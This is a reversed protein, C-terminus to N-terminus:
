AANALAEQVIRFLAFEADRALQPAFEKASVSARLGTRAEFQQAYWHLAPVLGHDDLVSPRLESMAFRIADVTGEVLRVMEGLRGSVRSEANAPLESGLIDIGIGLMTLNQGILDHLEMALKHREVEQSEVLRHLLHRVRDSYDRLQQEDRKRETIDKGVGRYGKFNGADDFVPEGNIMIYHRKGDAAVRSYEFDRIPLRSELQARHEDWSCTLPMVDPLEWRLRGFVTDTTSGMRREFAPAPRCLRLNEDQEWYWDSSLGTLSRFREESERLQLEARKRETIDRFSCVRGVVAGGSRQPLSHREIVRGDAFAIEERADLQPDAYLAAVGAAARPADRLSPAIAGFVRDLDRSALVDDSAGLMEKFRRNWLVIRKDLDTVLIGEATSELTATLLSHSSDRAREARKRETIDTYTTVFGGNPLPVGRIELITGDPREREFLHPEFRRALEVRKGVLQEIDGPGYEGRLANFRIVDAFTTHQNFLSEPLDLLQLFRRNWGTVRLDADVMSIGQDMHEFTDRLAASKLALAQEALRYETIDIAMGAVGFAGTADPLAFKVVLGFADRGDAYPLIEV